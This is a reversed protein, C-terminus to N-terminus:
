QVVRLAPKEVIWRPAECDVEIIWEEGFLHELWPMLLERAQEATEADLEVRLKAEYAM